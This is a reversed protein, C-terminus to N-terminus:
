SSCSLMSCGARNRAWEPRRAAYTERGPQEDYPRRLVEMLARLETLDGEQARDIAVQVLYNRPVYIPNVANMRARRAVGV